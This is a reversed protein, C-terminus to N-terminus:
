CRTTEQELECHRRNLGDPLKSEEEKLGPSPGAGSNKLTFHISPNKKRKREREKEEGM